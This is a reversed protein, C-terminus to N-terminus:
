AIFPMIHSIEMVHLCETQVDCLLTNTKIIFVPPHITYLPIITTQQLFRPSRKFVRHPCFARSKHQV